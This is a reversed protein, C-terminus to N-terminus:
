HQGTLKLNANMMIVSVLKEEYFLVLEDIILQKMLM